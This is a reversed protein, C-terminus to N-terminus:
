LSLHFKCQDNEENQTCCEHYRLCTVNTTPKPERINSYATSSGVSTPEESNYATHAETYVACALSRQCWRNLDAKWAVESLVVGISITFNILLFELRGQFYCHGTFIDTHEVTELLPVFVSITQDTTILEPCRLVLKFALWVSTFRVLIFSIFLKPVGLLNESSKKKQM